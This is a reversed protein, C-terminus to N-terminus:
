INRGVNYRNQWIVAKFTKNIVFINKVGASENGDDNDDDDDDYDECTEDDDYNM